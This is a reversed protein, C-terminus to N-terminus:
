FGGAYIDLTSFSLIVTFAELSTQRKTQKQTQQSVKSGLQIVKKNNL